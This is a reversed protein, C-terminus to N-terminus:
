AVGTQSSIDDRWGGLSKQSCRIDGLIIAVIHRVLPTKAANQARV